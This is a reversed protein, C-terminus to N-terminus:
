HIAERLTGWHIAARLVRRQSAERFFGWHVARELTVGHFTESTRVRPLTDWLTTGNEDCSWSRWLRMEM